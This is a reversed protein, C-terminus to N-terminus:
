RADGEDRDNGNRAGTQQLGASRRLLSGRHRRLNAPKPNQPFAVNDGM